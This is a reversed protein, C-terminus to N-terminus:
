DARYYEAVFWRVVDNSLNRATHQPRGPDSVPAIAVAAKVRTLAQEPALGADKLERVYDRVLRELEAASGGALATAVAGRMEAVYPRAPLHEHQPEPATM